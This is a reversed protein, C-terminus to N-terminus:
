HSFILISILFVQASDQIIALGHDTAALTCRRVSTEYFDIRYLVKVNRSKLSLEEEVVRWISKQNTGMAPLPLSTVRGFVAWFISSSTEGLSLAGKPVSQCSLLGKIM